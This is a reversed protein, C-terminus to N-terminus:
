RGTLKTADRLLEINGTQHIVELGAGSIRWGNETRKTDRTARAYLVWTNVGPDDGLAPHHHLAQEYFTTHATDGDITVVYNSRMHQTLSVAGLATRTNAALEDANALGPKHPGIGAFDVYVEDLMLSRYTDWDRTDAAIFIRNILEIIELKDATLSSSQNDQETM